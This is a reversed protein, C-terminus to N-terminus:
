SSDTLIFFSRRVNSDMGRGTMKQGGGIVNKDGGGGCTLRKKDGGEERRSDNERQPRIEDRSVGERVERVVEAAGCEAGSRETGSHQQTGQIQTQDLSRRYQPWPLFLFFFGCFRAGTLCENM